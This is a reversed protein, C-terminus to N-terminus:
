IKISNNPAESVQLDEEKQAKSEGIAERLYREIYNPYDYQPQSISNEFLEIRFWTEVIPKRSFLGCAVLQILDDTSVSSEEAIKIIDELDTDVIYKMFYQLTMLNRGLLLSQIEKRDCKALIERNAKSIKNYIKYTAEPDLKSLCYNLYDKISGKLGEECLISFTRSYIEYNKIDQETDEQKFVEPIFSSMKKIGNTVSQSFRDFSPKTMKIGQEKIVRNTYESITKENPVTAIQYMIKASVDPTVTGFREEVFSDFSRQVFPKISNISYDLILILPENSEVSTPEIVGNDIAWIINGVEISNELYAEALRLELEDKPESLVRVAKKFSPLKNKALISVIDQNKHLKEKYAKLRKEYNTM